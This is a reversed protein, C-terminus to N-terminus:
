PRSRSGGRALRLSWGRAGRNTGTKEIPDRTDEIPDATDISGLSAYRKSFNDGITGPQRLFEVRHELM